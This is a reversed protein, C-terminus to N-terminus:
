APRGSGTPIADWFPALATVLEDPREQPVFHGAGSVSLPPGLGLEACIREATKATLTTSHDGRVVWAPKPFSQLHPWPDLLAGTAYLQAELRPPCKLRVAGDEGTDTGAVAYLELYEPRWGAFVPKGALDTVMAERSPWTDRRRETMTALQRGRERLDDGFPGPPQLIPEVLAVPGVRDPMRAAVLAAVTAGASHGLIAPRYLDLREIAEAIDVALSLRDYGAPPKVSDGHGRLDLAVVQYQAALEAALPQWLRACLGTGHLLVLAPGNSGWRVGHLRGIEVELWIDREM